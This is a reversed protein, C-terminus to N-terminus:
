AKTALYNIPTSAYKMIFDETEAQTGAKTLKELRRLYTETASKVSDRDTIRYVGEDCVILAGLEVLTNLKVAASYPYPDSVEREQSGSNTVRKNYEDIKALARALDFYIASAVDDRTLVIEPRKTIAWLVFADAYFEKVTQYWRGLQLDTGEPINQAAHGIEHGAIVARRVKDLAGNEMRELIYPPTILRLKPEIDRETKWASVNDFFFIKHGRTRAIDSQSPMTNGQWIFEAAIGAHGACDCVIFQSNVGKGVDLILLRSAWLNFRASLDRNEETSWGEYAFKLNREKDLLREQLFAGISYKPLTHQNIYERMADNTDGSRFGRALIDAQDRILDEEELGNAARVVRDLREAIGLHIERFGSSRDLYSVPELKYGSFSLRRRVLTNNELVRRDRGVIEQWDIETMDPQYFGFTKQRQYGKHTEQLVGRHADALEVTPFRDLIEPFLVLGDPEIKPAVPYIRELM